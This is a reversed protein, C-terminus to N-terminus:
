LGMTESPHKINPPRCQQHQLQLKRECNKGGGVAVGRYTSYPPPTRLTTRPSTDRAFKCGRSGLHLDEPARNKVYSQNLICIAKGMPFFYAPDLNSSVNKSHGGKNVGWSFPPSPIDINSVDRSFERIIKICLLMQSIRLCDLVNDAGDLSVNLFLVLKMALLGHFM